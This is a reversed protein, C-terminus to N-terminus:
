DYRKCWFVAAFYLCYILFLHLNLWKNSKAVDCRGKKARGAAKKNHEEWKVKMTIPNEVKEPAQITCNWIRRQHAANPIRRKKFRIELKAKKYDKKILGGGIDAFFKDNMCGIIRVDGYKRIKYKDYYQEKARMTQARKELSKITGSRFSPNTKM